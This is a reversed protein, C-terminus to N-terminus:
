LYPPPPTITPAREAVIVAVQLRGYWLIPSDPTIPLETVQPKLVLNLAPPDRHNKM